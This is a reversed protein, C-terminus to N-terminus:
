AFSFLTLWKPFEGKVQEALRVCLSNKILLIYYKNVM